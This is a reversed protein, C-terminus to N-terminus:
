SSADTARMAGNSAISISTPRKKGGKVGQADTTHGAIAIEGRKHLVWALQALETRWAVPQGGTSTSSEEVM